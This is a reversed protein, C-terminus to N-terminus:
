VQNRGELTRDPLLLIILVTWPLDLVLLAWVSYKPLVSFPSNMGGTAVAGCCRFRSQAVCM